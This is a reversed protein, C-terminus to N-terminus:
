RRPPFPAAGGPSGVGPARPPPAPTPSAAPRQPPPDAGVARFASVVIVVSAALVGAAAILGPSPLEVLGVITCVAAAAAGIAARVAIARMHVREARLDLVGVSGWVRALSLTEFAAFAAVGALSTGVLTPETDVLSLSATVVVAIAAVILAGRRFAAVVAALVGVIALLVQWGQPSEDTMPLWFAGLALVVGALVLMARAVSGPPRVEYEIPIGSTGDDVITTMTNVATM